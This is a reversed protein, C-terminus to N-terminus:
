PRQRGKFAVGGASASFQISGMKYIEFKPNAFEMHDSRAFVVLIGEGWGDGVKAFKSGRIARLGSNSAHNQFPTGWAATRRVFRPGQFTDSVHLGWQLPSAM